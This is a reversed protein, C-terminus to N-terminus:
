SSLKDIAHYHLRETSKIEGGGEWERTAFYYHSLTLIYGSDKIKVGINKRSNKGRMEDECQKFM